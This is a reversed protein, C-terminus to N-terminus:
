ELVIEDLFQHRAIVHQQAVVFREGIDVDGAAVLERLKRFVAASAALGALEEPGESRRARDLARQDRQLPCEQQAGATVAHELRARPRAQEVLDLAAARWADAPDVALGVAAEDFIGAIEQAPPATVDLM